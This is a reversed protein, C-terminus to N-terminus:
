ESFSIEVIEEAFLPGGPCVVLAVRQQSGALAESVDDLSKVRHSNVAVLVDGAKIGAYYAPSDSTVSEVTITGNSQVVLGMGLSPGGGNARRGVLASATMAPEPTAFSRQLQSANHQQKRLAALEISHSVADRRSQVLLAAYHEHM